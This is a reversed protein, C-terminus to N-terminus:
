LTKPQTYGDSPTHEKPLNSITDKGRIQPVLRMKCDHKSGQEDLGQTPVFTQKRHMEVSHLSPYDFLVFVYRCIFCPFNKYIPFDKYVDYISIYIYTRFDKYTPFDKYIPFDKYRPFHRYVPFDKYVYVYIYQSAM